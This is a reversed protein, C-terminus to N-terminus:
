RVSRPPMSARKRIQLGWKRTSSPSACCRQKFVKIGQRRQHQRLAFHQSPKVGFEWPAQQLTGRILGLASCDQLPLAVTNALTDAAVTAGSRVSSVVHRQLPIASRSIHKQKRVCSNQDVVFQPRRLCTRINMYKYEYIYVYVCICIYM